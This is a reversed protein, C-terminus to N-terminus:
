SSSWGSRAIDATRHRASARTGPKARSCNTVSLTLARRRCVLQTKVFGRKTPISDPLCTGALNRCVFAVCRPPPMEPKARRMRETM